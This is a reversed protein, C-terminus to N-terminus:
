SVGTFSTKQGHCLALLSFWIQLYNTTDMDFGRLIVEWNDYFRRGFCGTIPFDYGCKRLRCLILAKRFFRSTGFFAAVATLMFSVSRQSRMVRDTGTCCDFYLLLAHLIAGTM